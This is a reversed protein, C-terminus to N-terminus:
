AKLVAASVKEDLRATVAGNGDDHLCRTGGDGPCKRRLGLTDGEAHDVPLALVSWQLLSFHSMQASWHDFFQGLGVVDEIKSVSLLLPAVCCNADLVPLSRPDSSAM